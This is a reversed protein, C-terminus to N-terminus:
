AGVERGGVRMGNCREETGVPATVGMITRQSVVCRAKAPVSLRGLAVVFLAHSPGELRAMRCQPRLPPEDNHKRVLLGIRPFGQDRRDDLSAEDNVPGPRDLGFLRGTHAGLARGRQSRGDPQDAFLAVRKGASAPVGLHELLHLRADGGPQAVEPVGANTAWVENPGSGPRRQFGVAAVRRDLLGRLGTLEHRHALEEAVYAADHHIEDDATHQRVPLGLGRGPVMWQVVHGRIVQEMAIVEAELFRRGARADEVGHRTTERLTLQDVLILQQCLTATSRLGLVLLWRSVVFFAISLLSWRDATTALVLELVPAGALVARQT